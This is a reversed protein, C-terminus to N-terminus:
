KRRYERYLNYLIEYTEKNMYEHYTNVDGTMADWRIPLPLVKELFELAVSKKSLYEILARGTDIHTVSWQNSRNTTMHPSHHVAFCGVCYANVEMSGVNTKIWVKKVTTKFKSM